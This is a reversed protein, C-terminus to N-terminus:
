GHCRPRSRESRDRGGDTRRPPPASPTTRPGARRACRAGGDRRAASSHGGAAIRVGTDKRTAGHREEYRCNLELAGRVLRVVEVGGRRQDLAGRTVARPEGGSGLVGVEETRVVVLHAARLREVAGTHVRKASSARLCEIYTSSPENLSLFSCAAALPPPSAPASSGGRVGPEAAAVVGAHQEAGVARPDRDVALDMEEVDVDGLVDAELLRGGDSGAGLEHGRGGCDAREAEGDAVVQAEGLEVGRQHPLARLDEGHRRRERQHGALVVPVRQQARPRDLGLAVDDRRRLAALVVVAAQAVAVAVRDHDIRPALHDARRRVAWPQREGLDIELPTARTRM